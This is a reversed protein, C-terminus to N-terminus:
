MKKMKSGLGSKSLILLVIGTFGVMYFINAYWGMGNFIGNALNSMWVLVPLTNQWATNYGGEILTINVNWQDVSNEIQNNIDVNLNDQETIADQVKHSEEGGFFKDFTDIVSSFGDEISSIMSEFWNQSSGDNVDEPDLFVGFKRVTVKPTVIYNGHGSGVYYPSIYLYSAEPDVASLDLTIFSDAYPVGASDSEYLFSKSIYDYCTNTDWDVANFYGDLDAYTSTVYNETWSKEDYGFYYSSEGRIYQSSHNVLANYSNGKDDHIYFGVPIAGSAHISMSFSGNRYNDDTLALMYYGYFTEEERLSDPIQANSNQSVNSTWTQILSHETGLSGQAWNGDFYYRFPCDVFSSVSYNVESICFSKYKPSDEDWGAFQSIYFYFELYEYTNVIDVTFYCVGNVVTIKANVNNVQFQTPPEDCLLKGSVTIAGKPILVKDNRFRIMTFHDGSVASFSPTNSLVVNEANYNTPMSWDGSVSYIRQDDAFATVAFSSICLVLVLVPALLRRFICKRKIDMFILGWNLISM